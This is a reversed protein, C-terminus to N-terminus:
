PVRFPALPGPIRSKNWVWWTPLSLIVLRFIVAEGSQSVMYISLLMLVMYQTIWPGGGAAVAKRWTSAYWFGIGFMFPFTLWSFEVWVDAVMAAAAGPVESWGMIASLGPGAVGANVLLEPVGFDEYKNPWIQRPIPRVLVQAAYRKGWFFRGEENAAVMCGVGFIYENAENAEFLGSVDTTIEQDSGLHIRDRNTVLILLLAGLAAGAGLMLPLSPRTGRAFYWSAGLTVMILFTPGRQAGLLGQMLYPISFIVVAALWKRNRPAFGQPSMLLLLAVILLYAAERIFGFESWGIGKARGFVATIGGANRVAYAWAALGVAGIAYAGNHLRVQDYFAPPAPRASTTSGVILGALLCALAILVLTHAWTAQEMTVYSWLAGDRSLYLPMAVYIFASMSMIIVAPHFVDKYVFYAYLIGALCLAATAWVLSDFM